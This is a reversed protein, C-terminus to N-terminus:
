WKVRRGDKLVAHGDLVMEDSTKSYNIDEIKPQTSPTWGEDSDLSQGDTGYAPIMDLLGSGGVAAKAEALIRDRSEKNNLLDSISKAM